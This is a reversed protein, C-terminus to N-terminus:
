AAADGGASQWPDFGLKEVVSNQVRSSVSQGRLVKHVTSPSISLEHAIERQTVGARVLAAKLNLFAQQEM